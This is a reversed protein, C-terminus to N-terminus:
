ADLPALLDRYDDFGKSVLVDISKRVEFPAQPERSDRATRLVTRIHEPQGLIGWVESTGTVMKRLCRAAPTPLSKCTEALREALSFEAEIQGGTLDLVRNLSNIAWKADFAKNAFWWGLARMEEILGTDDPSKEAAVIREGALAVFRDHIDKPLPGKETDITRGIFSLAHARVASAGTQWFRQWLEDNAAIAGRGYVLVLHEALRRDPDADRLISVPWPEGLSSIAALYEERLIDVVKDYPPFSLVYAGWAAYRLEREGHATTFIRSRAARAWNEDLLVLWPFFEGYVTRIAPSPDNGRDL